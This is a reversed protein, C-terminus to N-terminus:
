EIVALIKYFKSNSGAQASWTTGSLHGSFDVTFVGNPDMSSYVRYTSAGAVPSWQIMVTEGSTSISVNQPASIGYVLVVPSQIRNEAGMGILSGHLGQIQDYIRNGSIEDLKWYGKLGTTTNAQIINKNAAIEAESRAINWLRIEDLCGNYPYSGGQRIGWKLPVSSNQLPTSLPNYGNNQWTIDTGNLYIKGLASAPNYVCALHQWVGTQLMGSHSDIYVGTTPIFRISGNNGNTHIELEEYNKGSLFQIAQGGQWKFWLELSVQNLNQLPEVSAISAHEGSGDFSLAGDPRSGIGIGNLSVQEGAPNQSHQILLYANHNGTRLPHFTVLIQATNNTLAIPLPNSLDFSFSGSDVGGLQVDTVALAQGGLNSLIVTQVVSDFGTLTEPFSLATPSIGMIPNDTTLLLYDETEGYQLIGAPLHTDMNTHIAQIRMRTPSATLNNPLRINGGFFGNVWTLDWYEGASQNNSFVADRNVDVWVRVAEPGYGGSLHVAIPIDIGCQAATSISYNTYGNWASPNNITGFQVNTIALSSNLHWPTQYQQTDFSWLASWKTTGFANRSRVKWYYTTYSSLNLADWYPQSVNYVTLNQPSTGFAIDYSVANNAQWTFRLNTNHNFTSNAPYPSNPITAPNQIVSFDDIVWGTGIENDNFVSRFRVRFASSGSWPTLDFIETKWYEALDEDNDFTLWNSYSGEDFCPGEPNAGQPLNYVGTGLYSSAPFIEWSIGGDISFEVYGLDGDAELLAIHRFSMYAGNTTSLDHTGCEILYSTNGAQHVSFMAGANGDGLPMNAWGYQDSISAFLYSSPNDFKESFPLPISLPAVTFYYPETAYTVGGLTIVFQYYYTYGGLLPAQFNISDRRTFVTQPFMNLQKMSTESAGFYISWNGSFCGDGWTWALYSTNPDVDIAGLPITLDYPANPISWPSYFQGGVEFAYAGQANWYERIFLYYTEDDPITYSVFSQTTNNYDDNSELIMGASNRIELVTDMTTLGLTSVTIEDGPFGYIIWVDIDGLYNFAGNHTGNSSWTVNVDSITNNPETETVANAVSLILVLLVFLFLARFM